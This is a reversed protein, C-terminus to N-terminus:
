RISNPSISCAAELHIADMVPTDNYGPSFPSQGTKQTLDLNDGVKIRSRMSARMGLYMSGVENV